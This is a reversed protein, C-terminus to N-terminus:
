SCFYLAIALYCVSTAHNSLLPLHRFITYIETKLLIHKHIVLVHLRSHFLITEECRLMVYKHDSAFRLLYGCLLLTSYSLYCRCVHSECNRPKM